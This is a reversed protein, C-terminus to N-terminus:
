IHQKTSREYSYGGGDCKFIYPVAFTRGAASPPFHAKHAATALCAGVKADGAVEVKEVSGAPSVHVTLTVAVDKECSEPRCKGRTVRHIPNDGEFHEDFQLPPASPVYYPENTVIPATVATEPIGAEPPVAVVERKCALLLTAAGFATVRM